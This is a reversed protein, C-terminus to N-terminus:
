KLRGTQPMKKRGGASVLLLEIKGEASGVREFAGLLFGERNGLM